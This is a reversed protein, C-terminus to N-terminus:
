TTKMPIQINRICQIWREALQKHGEYTPHSGDLTQIRVDYAAADVDALYVNNASEKCVQRIADNYYNFDVGAFCEPFMWSENGKMSTRVLTGCITAANPFRTKIKDLMSRYATIFTLIDVGNGFDNFGIYVLIIDPDTNDLGLAEVRKDSSASPFGNGSVKSGSYANNVLLRVPAWSSEANLFQIVRAWWTDMVSYVGTEMQKEYDYFVAYGDPNFNQYTSVSAGLISIYRM